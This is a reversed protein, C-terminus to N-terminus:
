RDISILCDTAYVKKEMEAVTESIVNFVPQYLKGGNQSLHLLATVTARFM